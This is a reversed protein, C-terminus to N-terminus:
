ELRPLKLSNWKELEKELQKHLSNFMEKHQATPATDADEQSAAFSALLENLMGPFALNAESGKMNVQMLKQEIPDLSVLASDIQASMAANGKNKEKAKALRERAKRIENVAHHLRDIDKFASVELEYKARIAEVRAQEEPTREVKRQERKITM